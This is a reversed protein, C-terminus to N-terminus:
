IQLSIPNSGMVEHILPLPQAVLSAKNTTIICANLYRYIYIYVCVCM